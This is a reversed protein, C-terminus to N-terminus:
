IFGYFSGVCSRLVSTANIFLGRRLSHQYGICCNAISKLWDAACERLRLHAPHQPRVGLHNGAAAASVAEQRQADM